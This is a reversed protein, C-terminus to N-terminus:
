ESKREGREGKEERGTGIYSISHRVFQCLDRLVDVATATTGRGISLGNSVNDFVLEVYM